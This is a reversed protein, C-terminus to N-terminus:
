RGVERAGPCEFCAMRKPRYDSVGLNQVHGCELVAHPTTGPHAPWPKRMEFREVLKRPRRIM